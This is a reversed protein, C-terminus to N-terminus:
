GVIEDCAKMCVSCTFGAQLYARCAFANMSYAEGLQPTHIARAPCAQICADCDICYDRDARPSPPLDAETVVCALRVRPGFEPTILLTHHGITGLGAAQAVDKYSLLGTLFRQDTPSVAPLPLSRYGKQRLLYALEHAARTLRGNLYDSHVGLLGGAEVAGSEKTPQVLSIVERFIEKGFVVVSRAGPLLSTARRRLETSDSTDVSAVGILDVDLAAKMERVFDQDLEGM